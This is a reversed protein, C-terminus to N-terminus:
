VLSTWVRYAATLLWALSMAVLSSGGTPSGRLPSRVRWGLLRTVPPWHALHSDHLTHPTVLGAQLGIYASHRAHPLIPKYWFVCRHVPIKGRRENKRSSTNEARKRNGKWEGEIRYGLLPLSLTAKRKRDPIISVRITSSRVLSQFSAGFGAPTHTRPELSTSNSELAQVLIYYNYM